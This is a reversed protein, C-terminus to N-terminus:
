LSVEKMFEDLFSSDLDDDNSSQKSQNQQQNQQQNDREKNLYSSRDAQLSQYLDIKEVQLNNLQFAQKLGDMNSQLLEKAKASSAIITAMMGHENKVLEISIRGLNEPFLKIFIKQQGMENSFASKQIINQFDRVFQNAQAKNTTKGVYLAFQKISEGSFNQNSFSSDQNDTENLSIKTTITENKSEGNLVNVDKSNTPTKIDVQNFSNTVINEIRDSLSKIQDKSIGKESLYQGIVSLFGKLDEESLEVKSTDDTINETNITENMKSLIKTLMDSLDELDNLGNLKLKEDVSLIANMFGKSDTTLVGEPMILNSDVKTQSPDNIFSELQKQIISQLLSLIDLIGSSEGKDNSDVDNIKENLDDILKELKKIDANGDTNKVLKTQDDKPQVTQLSQSNKMIKEFSKNNKQFYSSKSKLQHVLNVVNKNDIGNM